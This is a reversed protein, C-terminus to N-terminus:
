SSCLKGNPIHGHQALDSGRRPHGKGGSKPQQSREEGGGDGGTARGPTIFAVASPKPPPV